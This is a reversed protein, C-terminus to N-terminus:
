RRRFRAGCVTVSWARRRRCLVDCVVFVASDARATPSLSLLARALWLSLSRRRASLVLLRPIRVPVDTQELEPYKQVAWKVNRTFLEILFPIAVEFWGAGASLLLDPLWVGLNPVARKDRKSPDRLFSRVSETARQV